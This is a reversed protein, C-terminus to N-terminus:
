APAASRRMILRTLLAGVLAAGAACWLATSYGVVLAHLPGDPAGIALDHETSSDAVVALIALGIAGGAQYTTTALGSAAGAIPGDLGMTCVVFSSVISV